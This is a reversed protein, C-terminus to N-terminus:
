CSFASGVIDLVEIINGLVHDPQMTKQEHSNRDGYAAHATLMGIRSAPEIDRRISDGVYLTEAPMLDLGKLVYFFVEPAPKKRGTMDYTVLLDFKDLLGTVDLRAKANKSHADTVVALELEMKRLSDLTSYVNPYPRITELKTKEYIRCCHFYGADSYVGIDRMYDAINSQDEYGHGPRRFYSYLELQEGAGLYEVIRACAELKAQVFDFLTNDMDFIVGKIFANEM